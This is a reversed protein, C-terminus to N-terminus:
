IQEVSLPLETTAQLGRSADLSILLSSTQHVVAQSNIPLILTSSAEQIVAPGSVLQGTTLADRDYVPIDQYSQDADMWVPRTGVQAHQGSIKTSKTELAGGGAPATLAVRINVIEVDGVPPLRGFSKIYSEEFAQKITTETAASYPGAPLDTIVEFGQGVYRLDAARQITPCVDGQSLTERIVLNADHELGAYLAELQEWDLRSMRQSVTQYQGQKKYDKAGPDPLSKINVRM